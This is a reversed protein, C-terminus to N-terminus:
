VTCGAKRDYMSNSNDYAFLYGKFHRYVDHTQQSYNAVPTMMIMYMYTVLFCPNRSLERFITTTFHHIGKM